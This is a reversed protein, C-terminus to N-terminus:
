KKRNLVLARVCGRVEKKEEELHGHARKGGCDLILLSWRHCQRAVKGPICCVHCIPRNDPTRSHNLQKCVPRPFPTARQLITYQYSQFAGPQLQRVCSACTVPAPSSPPASEHSGKRAIGSTSRSASRGYSSFTTCRTVTLTLRPNLRLYPLHPPHCASPFADAVQEQIVRHM